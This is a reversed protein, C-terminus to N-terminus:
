LVKTQRLFGRLNNILNNPSSKFKIKQLFDSLDRCIGLKFVRKKSLDGTKAVSLLIRMFKEKVLWFNRRFICVLDWALLSSLAIIPSLSCLCVHKRRLRKLKRTVKAQNKENLDSSSKERSEKRIEYVFLKEYGNYNLEFLCTLKKREILDTTMIAKKIQKRVRELAKLKLAGSCLGTRWDESRFMISVEFAKNTSAFPKKDTKGGFCLWGSFYISDLQVM